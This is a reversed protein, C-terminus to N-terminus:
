SVRWSTGPEALPSNFTPCSGIVLHTGPTTSAQPDALCASAAKNELAPALQLFFGFTPTSWQQSPKGTCRSLHISMSFGSFGPPLVAPAYASTM